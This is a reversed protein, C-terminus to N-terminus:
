AHAPEPHGGAAANLRGAVLFNLMLQVPTVIIKAAVAGIVAAGGLGLAHAHSALMPALAGIAASAATIQLAVYALYAALRAPTSGEARAFVRRRTVLFVLGSACLSSIMNAPAPALRAAHVLATLVLVDFLWGCGSVGAFRV